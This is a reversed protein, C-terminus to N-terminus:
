KLALPSTLQLVVPSGSAVDLNAKSNSTLLYGGVAGVAGGINSDISKGIWNGILMGALTGGAQKAIISGQHATMKVVKASIPQQDSSGSLKISDISIELRPDTGQYAAQADIVKGYITAGSLVNDGAPYPQQVTLTVPQGVYASKTNLDSTLTTDILLGDAIAALAPAIDIAGSTPDYSVSAGLAESVFRLPVMTTSGALFPAADLYEQQGGVIAENSGIKVQVTKDGSTANITGNDYAVGANLSEFVARLPVFVRGGREFPAPTTVLDVGSVVVHFMAANAPLAIVCLTPAVLMLLSTAWRLATKM